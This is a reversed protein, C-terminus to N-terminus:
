DEEEDTSSMAAIKSRLTAQKKRLASMADGDSPDTNRIQTLVDSHAQQLKALADSPGGSLDRKKAQAKVTPVNILARVLNYKSRNTLRRVLTPRFSM